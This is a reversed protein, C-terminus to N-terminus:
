ESTRGQKLEKTAIAIISLVETMIKVVIGMMADSLTITTYIELRKLFTKIREFLDILTEQSANVDKAAHNFAFNSFRLGRLPDFFISAILLIGIGAFVARAPSFM